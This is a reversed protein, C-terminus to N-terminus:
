STLISDLGFVSALITGKVDNFDMRVINVRARERGGGRGIMNM